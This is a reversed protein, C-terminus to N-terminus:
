AKGFFVADASFRGPGAVLLTVYGALYIFAMEGSKEGSLVLQHILTFAVAMNVVLIASAFRTVLGVLLLASCVVEAFVALGLSVSHGVHLPDPFEKALSSFHSLKDWGHLVLMAGGLWLRLLLLGFSAMLSDNGPVFVRTVRVM